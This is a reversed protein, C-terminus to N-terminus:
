QENSFIILSLSKMNKLTDRLYSHNLFPFFLKLCSGGGQLRVIVFNEKERNKKQFSMRWFKM